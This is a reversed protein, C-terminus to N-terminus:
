GAVRRRLRLPELLWDVLTQKELIIEAVLLMGPRLPVSAKGIEVALYDIAIVVKYTAERLSFTQPIDAPLLVFDSVHEVRGSFAGFKQQPFADYMVRVTQGSYIFGIARSPVYVEVALRVDHPLITALLQQPTVANGAHVEVSAVVGDIPSSLVVLRQSEHDAIQRLLETRRTRLLSLSSETSVPLSFLQGRLRERERALAIANQQLQSLQQRSAGLEDEQRLTDWYAVAGDRSAERLRVVKDTTLEVRRRQEEIQQALAHAEADIEELQALITSESIDRQEHLLQQQVGLEALAMRIQILAQESKGVGSELITERSLYIVPDGQRVSDGPSIVVEDVMAASNHTVRVVGSRSVLWGRVREKRSYEATSAFVGAVLFLTIILSIFWPWPRPMVGIPRGFPKKSLSQIAQARFLNESYL